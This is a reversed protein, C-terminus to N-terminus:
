GSMTRKSRSGEPNSASHSAPRSGWDAAGDSLGRTVAGTLKVIKSLRSGTQLSVADPSRAVVRVFEVDEGLM